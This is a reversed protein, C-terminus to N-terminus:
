VAALALEPVRTEALVDPRAHVRKSRDGTRRSASIGLREQILAVALDLAKIEDSNKALPKGLRSYGDLGGGQPGDWAPHKAWPLKQRELLSLRNPAENALFVLTEVIDFVLMAYAHTMHEGWGARGTKRSIAFYRRSPDGEDEDAGAIALMARPGILFTDKDLVYPAEGAQLRYSITLGARLIQNKRTAMTTGRRVGAAVLRMGM